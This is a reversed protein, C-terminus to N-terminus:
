GKGLIVNRVTRIEDTYSQGACYSWSGDQEKTLRRLIGCDEITSPGYTLISRLRTLTKVRCRTGIVELISDIDNESLEQKLDTFTNKM